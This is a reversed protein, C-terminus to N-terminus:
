GEEKEKQFAEIIKDSIERPVEEMHDFTAIFTAKDGTMGRLDPSLTHMEAQPIEANITTLKGSDESGLVKGRRSSINGYVDGMYDNPVTIGVKLIPELLIPSALASAKKWAQSGAVKFAMESSDVAHYSGFFLEVKVDQVPNGTLDGKVMSEVIGKEVAPIFQKPIVGGVISNVFEFGGSRPLPEVRIHCDGFQGRGGSQKKHKGQVEAKGKITEKYPIKPEVLEVEVGFKRKMREMTVDLQAQGVGSLIFESTQEQRWFSLNADEELIRQIAISMKEEEGKSKPFVSRNVMPSMVPLKPFAIGDAESSVMTDGTGIDKLKVVAVIEGAEAIDISEQVKGRQFFLKGPKEKSRKAINIFQDDSKLTGRFIRFISVKGTFPDSMTKIVQAAFNGELSIKLESEEKTDPNIVTRPREEAPNPFASVITNLLLDIGINKVASGCLVPVFAGSLTGLKLCANLEEDSIEEGELYKEMLDDDAEVLREIMTARLEEAEDALDAPIDGAKAKGKGDYTYAKNSLLDVVGTFDDEKGIPIQMVVPEIPFGNTISDLAKDFNCHEKDLRNIFAIHPINQEKATVSLLETQYKVGDVADVPFIVAGLAPMLITAEPVFNSNGPTDVMFLQTDNHVVDYFSSSVSYQRKHEEPEFDMTSQGADVSGIREIAKSNYLIAECISTKGSGAHGVFGFVRKQSMEFKKAM